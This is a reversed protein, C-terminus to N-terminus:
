AANEDDGSDEGGDEYAEDVQEQEQAEVADDASAGVTHYGVDDREVYTGTEELQEDATEEVVPPSVPPQALHPAAHIGSHTYGRAISPNTGGRVPQAVPRAQAKPRAPAPARAAAGGGLSPPIPSKKKAMKPRQETSVTKDVTYNEFYERGTRLLMLLRASYHEVDDIVGNIRNYLFGYALMCPIAVFLGFATANLATAIGGSIMEQKQSGEVVAVAGFTEILGVVTGLLGILTATNAISFLYTMRHQLKPVVGLTAVEVHGQLEEFPRDANVLAAKLVQYVAAKKNSNCLKIAENLNNDLILRQLKQMLMAGDANYVFLVMYIREAIVTWGIILLILVPWMILGGEQFYTILKDM